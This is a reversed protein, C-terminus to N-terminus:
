GETIIQTIGGIVTDVGVTSHREVELPSITMKLRYGTHAPKELRLIQQVALRRDELLAKIYRPIEGSQRQEESLDKVLASLDMDILFYYPPPDGVTCEEVVSTVGVQFPYLDHVRVEQDTYITIYDQIGGATGRRRYLPIIQALVNRQKEPPWETRLVLEVWSALWPLFEEESYFPDFYTSVTRLKDEFRGFHGEIIKILSQTSSGKGGQDEEQFIEPLLSDYDSPQGTKM